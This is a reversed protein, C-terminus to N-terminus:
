KKKKEKEKIFYWDSIDIRMKINNLMCFDFVAHFVDLCNFIDHGSIVGNIKIKSYWYEIDQYVANYQHNGDIYIFDLSNDDFLNSAIISDLRLINVRKDKKFTNLTYKYCNNSLKVSKYYEPAWSDILYLEKINLEKLISKSNIGLQVGIEVGILKQNKFYDKMFIISKRPIKTIYSSHYLGFKLIRMYLHPAFCKIMKFIILYRIKEFFNFIM